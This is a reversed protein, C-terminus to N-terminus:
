NPDIIKRRWGSCQGDNGHSSRDHLQQAKLIPPVPSVSIAVLTIKVAPHLDFSVGILLAILPMLVSMSLFSRALLGAHRFLFTADAFTARLGIGFVVLMISTKLALLIIATMDM